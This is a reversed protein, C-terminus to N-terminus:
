LAELKQLAARAKDSATIVPLPASDTFGRCEGFEKWAVSQALDKLADVCELLALITAPRAAAIYRANAVHDKGNGGFLRLDMASREDSERAIVTRSGAIWEGPTAAMAAQKLQETNM